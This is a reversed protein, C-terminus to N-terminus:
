MLPIENQTWPTHILNNGEGIQAFISSASSGAVDSCIQDGDGDSTGFSVVIWTLAAGGRSQGCGGLDVATAVKIRTVM